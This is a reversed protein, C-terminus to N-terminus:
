AKDRNLHLVCDRKKDQATDAENDM